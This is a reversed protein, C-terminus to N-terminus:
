KRKKTCAQRGSIQSSLHTRRFYKNASLVYARSKCAMTTMRLQQSDQVDATPARSLSANQSYLSYRLLPMSNEWCILAALSRTLGAVTTIVAKLTSPSGVPWTQRESRTQLPKKLRGLRKSWFRTVLYSANNNPM